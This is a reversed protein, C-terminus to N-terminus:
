PYSESQFNHRYSSSAAHEPHYLETRPSRRTLPFPAGNGLRRRRRGQKGNPSSQLVWIEMWISVAPSASGPTSSGRVFVGLTFAPQGQLGRLQTESGTCTRPHTKGEQHATHGWWWSQAPAAPAPQASADTTTTLQPSRPQKSGSSPSGLLMVTNHGQAPLITLKKNTLAQLTSMNPKSVHKHTGPKRKASGNRLVSQTAM